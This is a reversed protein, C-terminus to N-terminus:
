DATVGVDSVIWRGSKTKQMKLQISGGEYYIHTADMLKLTSNDGSASDWVLKDLAAGAAVKQAAERDHAKFAEFFGRAAESQTKAGSAGGTKAS